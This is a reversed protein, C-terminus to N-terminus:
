KWAFKNEQERASTKYAKKLQYKISFFYDYLNSNVKKHENVPM